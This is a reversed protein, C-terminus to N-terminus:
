RNILKIAKEIAPDGTNGLADMVSRLFDQTERPSNIDVDAPIGPGEYNTGDLSEYVM